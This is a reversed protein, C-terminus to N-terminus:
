SIEDYIEPFRLALLVTDEIDRKQKEYGALYDWDLNMSKSEPQFVSVGLKELKEQAEAKSKVSSNGKIDIPVTGNKENM